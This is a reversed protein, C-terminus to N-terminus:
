LIFQQLDFVIQLLLFLLLFSPGNVFLLCRGWAHSWRWIILAKQFGLLPISNRFSSLHHCKQDLSDLCGYSSVRTPSTQEVGALVLYDNQDCFYLLYSSLSRKGLRTNKLHTPVTVVTHVILSKVLSISSNSGIKFSIYLFNAIFQILRRLRSVQILHACVYIHM